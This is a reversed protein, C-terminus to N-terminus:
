IHYELYIHHLLNNLSLINSLFLINTISSILLKKIVIKTCNITTGESVLICMISYIIYIYYFKTNVISYYKYINFIGDDINYKNSTQFCLYFVM